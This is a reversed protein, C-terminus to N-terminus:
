HEEKHELFEKTRNWYKTGASWTLRARLFCNDWIESAVSILYKEKSM